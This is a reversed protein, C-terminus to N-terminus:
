KGTSGADLTTAVAGPAAWNWEPAGPQGDLTPPAKVRAAPLKPISKRARPTPPTPKGEPYVLHEERWCDDAVPWSARDPSKLDRSAPGETQFGSFGQRDADNWCVVLWGM